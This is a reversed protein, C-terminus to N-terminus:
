LMGGANAFEVIFKYSNKGPTLRNLWLVIMVFAGLGMLILLGVSGERLTRKSAFSNTRIDRM